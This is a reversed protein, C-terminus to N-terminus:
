RYPAVDGADQIVSFCFYAFFAAVGLRVWTSRPLSSPALIASWLCTSPSPFRRRIGCSRSSPDGFCLSMSHFSCLCLRVSLCLSIRWSCVHVCPHGCRSGYVEAAPLGRILFWIFSMSQHRRAPISISSLTPPTLRNQRLVFLNPTSASVIILDWVDLLTARRVRDSCRTFCNFDHVSIFSCAYLPECDTICDVDCDLLTVGFSLMWVGRFFELDVPMLELDLTIDVLLSLVLPGPTTDM